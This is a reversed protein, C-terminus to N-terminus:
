GLTSLICDKVFDDPMTYKALGTILPSKTPSLSFYHYSPAHAVSVQDQSDGPVHYCVPRPSDLTYLFFLSFFFVYSFILLLLFFSYFFFFFSSFILFLFFSTVFLFFLHFLFFSTLSVM